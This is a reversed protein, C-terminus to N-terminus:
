KQNAMKARAINEVSDALNWIVYQMSDDNELRSELEKIKAERVDNPIYASKAPKKEYAIKTARINVGKKDAVGYALSEKAGNYDYDIVERAQCKFTDSKKVFGFRSKKVVCWTDNDVRELKYTAGQEYFFEPEINPAYVSYTKLIRVTEPVSLDLGLCSAGDCNDLIFNKNAAVCHKRYQAPIKDLDLVPYYAAFQKKNTEVINQLETFFNNVIRRNRSKIAGRASRNYDSADIVNDLEDLIYDYKRADYNYEIIEAVAGALCAHAVDVSSADLNNARMNQKLRKVCKNLAVDAQREIQKLMHSAQYRDAILSDLEQQMAFASDKPLLKTQLNYYETQNLLSDKIQEFRARKAFERQQKEAKKNQTDCGTMTAAAAALLAIVAIKGITNKKM